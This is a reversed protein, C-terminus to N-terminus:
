TFTKSCCNFLLLRMNKDSLFYYCPIFIANVDLLVMALYTAMSGASYTELFVDFQIYATMMACPLSVIVYIIMITILTKVLRIFKIDRKQDETLQQNPLNSDPNWGSMITRTGRRQDSNYRSIAKKTAWLKILVLRYSRMTLWIPLAYGVVIGFVAAYFSIKSTKKTCILYTFGNTEIAFSTSLIGTPSTLIISTFWLIAIVIFAYKITLQRCQHKVVNRYRDIAVIAMTWTLVFGCLFSSSLSFACAVRGTLWQRKAFAIGMLMSGPFHVLTVGTTNLLLVNTVTHLQKNFAIFILLGVCLTTSILSLIGMIYGKLVDSWTVEGAEVFYSYYVREEGNEQLIFYSTNIMSMNWNSVYESYLHFSM